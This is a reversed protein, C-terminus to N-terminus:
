KLRLLALDEKCDIVSYYRKFNASTTDTSHHVVIISRSNEKNEYESERYYFTFSDIVPEKGVNSIYNKWLFAMLRFFENIEDKSFKEFVMDDRVKQNNIAGKLPAIKESNLYLYGDDDVYYNIMGTEPFKRMLYEMRKISDAVEKISSEFVLNNRVPDIEQKTMYLFGGAVIIIVIILKIFGM